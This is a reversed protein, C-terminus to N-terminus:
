SNLEKVQSNVWNQLLELIDEKKSIPLDFYEKHVTIVEKAQEQIDIVVNFKLEPQNQKKM